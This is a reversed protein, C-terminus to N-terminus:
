ARSSNRLLEAYVALTGQIMADVTFAEAARAGEAALRAHLARDDLLRVIADGLARTDGPPFLVATEEPRAFDRHGPADSVIAPVGRAMAELPALGFPEDRAPAVFLDAAAYLPELDDVHGLLVITGAERALGELPERVDADGAGAILLRLNPREARLGAVAQAAVLVDKRATLRSAVLAVEADPALGLRARAEARDPRAAPPPPIGNPVRRVHDAPVIPSARLHAEVAGSPAIVRDIARGYYWRNAATERIRKLNHKTRVLPPANEGILTRALAACWTDHSAHCHVLDVRERRIFRALLAVDRPMRWLIGPRNKNFPIPLLGISEVELRTAVSAGPPAAVSVRFDAAALGRALAVIMATEGSWGRKKCTILVHPPHM